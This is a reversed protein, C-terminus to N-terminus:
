GRYGMACALWVLLPLFFRYPFFVFSVQLGFNIAVAIAAILSFAFCAPMPSAFTAISFAIGEATSRILSLFLSRTPASSTRVWQPLRNGFLFALASEGCWAVTISPGVEALTWVLSDELPETRSHSLRRHQLAHTLLAMNDVGIALALFPLAEMVILTSPQLTPPLRILPISPIVDSGWM